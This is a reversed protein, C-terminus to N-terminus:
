VCSRKSLLTVSAEIAAVVSLLASARGVVGRKERKKKDKKGVQLVSYTPWCLSFSSFFDHVVFCVAFFFPTSPFTVLFFFLAIADHLCLFFFVGFHLATFYSTSYLLFVFFLFLLHFVVLLPVSSTQCASTISFALCRVHCVCGNAQEKERKKKTPKTQFKTSSFGVAHM